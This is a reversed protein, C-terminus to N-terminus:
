GLTWRAFDVLLVLDSQNQLLTLDNHMAYHTVRQVIDDDLDMAADAGNVNAYAQRVHADSTPTTGQDLFWATDKAVLSKRDKANM